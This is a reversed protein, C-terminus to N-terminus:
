VLESVFCTKTEFRKFFELTEETLEKDHLAHVRDNSLYILGLEDLNVQDQSPLNSNIIKIGYESCAEAYSRCWANGPPVGITPRLGFCEGLIMQSLSVSTRIVGNSRWPWYERHMTRNSSFIKPKFALDETVAHTLGHNAIEIVKCAIGENLLKVHDPFKVNFTEMSGDLNLWCATIGLTARSNRDILKQIFRELLEPEIEDYKAWARFKQFNHLGFLNGWGNLAKTYIENHKASAGFDDLRLAKM